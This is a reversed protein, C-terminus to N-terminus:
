DGEKAPKADIPAQADTAVAPTKAADKEAAEKKKTAIASKIADLQNSKWYSGPAGNEEALMSLEVLQAADLNTLFPTGTKAGIFREASAFVRKVIEDNRSAQSKIVSAAVEREHTRDKAAERAEIWQDFKSEFREITKEQRELMRFLLGDVRERPVLVLNLVRSMMSLLRDASDSGGGDEDDLSTRPSMLIDRGENMTVRLAAIQSPNFRNAGEGDVVPTLAGKRELTRVKSVSCGLENAVESRTLWSTLDERISHGKGNVVVAAETSM